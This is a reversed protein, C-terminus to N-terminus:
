DENKGGGAVNLVFNYSYDDAKSLNLINEGLDAVFFKRDQLLPLNNDPIYNIGIHENRIMTANLAKIQEKYTFLVDISCKIIIIQGRLMEYDTIYYYRDTKDCYLYNANIADSTSKLRIVPHLLSGEIIEGEHQELESLSKNLVRKDSSNQYLTIRM